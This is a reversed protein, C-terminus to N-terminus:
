ELGHVNKGLDDHVLRFLNKKSAVEIKKKTRTYVARTLTAIHYIADGPRAVPMTTVGIVIGNTPSVLQSKETGFTNHVTAIVQDKEVLDGPRAAFSLTGGGEARVWASKGITIQFLPKIPTGNVMGLAKMVNLLGRVGVKVVGPEIKWVEGAELLITPVGADSACRRLSGLPGKNNVLLECGFSEALLRAKPNSLDARITPYNVRRVAATHLDILYDSQQVLESFIVNALRSTISGTASGPFTRNLDRRDPLYRTHNELGFVNVVPVIILTGCILPPPQGFLLERLIGMGNLEDGHVCATLLLRPGPKKARIVQIPVRVPAGLYSESFKLRVQSREGPRIREGAIVLPKHRQGGKKPTAM